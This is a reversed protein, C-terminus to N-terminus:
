RFYECTGSILSFHNRQLAVLKARQSLQELCGSLQLEVRLGGGLLCMGQDM